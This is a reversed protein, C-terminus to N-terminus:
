VLVIGGGAPHRGGALAQLIEALPLDARLAQGHERLLSRNHRTDALILLVGSVERDSGPPQSCLISRHPALLAM